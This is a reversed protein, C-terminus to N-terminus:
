IQVDDDLFGDTLCNPCAWYETEPDNVVVSVKQMEQAQPYDKIDYLPADIQPNEDILIAGCCNCKCLYTDKM